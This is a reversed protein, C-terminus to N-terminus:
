LVPTKELGELIACGDTSTQDCQTVLSQLENQLLSLERIHEEIEQLKIKAIGQVDQCAQAPAERMQILQTIEALSFNM